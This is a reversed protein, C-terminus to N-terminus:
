WLAFAAVDSRTVASIWSGARPVGGVIEIRKLNQEGSRAVSILEAKVQGSGDVALRIAYTQSRRLLAVV